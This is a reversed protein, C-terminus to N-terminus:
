MERVVLKPLVASHRLLWNRAELKYDLRAQPEPLLLVDHFSEGGLLHHQFDEQLPQQKLGHAFMHRVMDAGLIKMVELDAVVVVFSNEPDERILLGEARSGVGLVVLMMM